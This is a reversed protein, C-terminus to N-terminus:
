RTPLDVQRWSARKPWEPRSSKCEAKWHGREGCLRCHSRAIRQLLAERDKKGKGKGKSNFSKGKKTGKGVPWFGRSRQKERLRSRADMYSVLASQMEPTEQFFEELDAEFTAVNIADTDEAAVLAEVFEPDLDADIEESPSVSSTTFAFESSGDPRDPAEEVTNADYVKSRAVARSGQLDGFFRSGLLRISACVHKYSLEGKHEIVIKKKDESSLQSQRLLVYARLEEFQINQALLEEFCVDHRALYSDNTEDSKQATGYIAREFYEYKAELVTQGWSGGLTEVLLEVGSTDNAKLKDPNLRAIKKFATGECLLAARPALSSLHEKPWIAALFKMKKSYETVDTVGPTFRPVSSWPLTSKEDTSASSSGPTETGM